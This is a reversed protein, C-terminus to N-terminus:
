GAHHAARTPMNNQNFRWSALAGLFGNIWLHCLRACIKRFSKIKIQAIQTMQPYFNAKRPTKADQRNLKMFAESSM